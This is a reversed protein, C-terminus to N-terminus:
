NAGCELIRHQQKKKILFRQVTITICLYGNFWISLAQLLILYWSLLRMYLLVLNKQLQVLYNILGGLYINTDCIVIWGYEVMETEHKERKFAQHCWTCFCDYTSIDSSVTPYPWKSHSQWWAKLLSTTDGPLKGARRKRLIEERIDVIKDKTEKKANHITNTSDSDLYSNKISNYINIHM